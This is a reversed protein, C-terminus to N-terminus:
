NDCWVEADKVPTSLRMTTSGTKQLEERDFTSAYASKYTQCQYDEEFRATISCVKEGGVNMCSHFKINLKECATLGLCFALLLYFKVYVEEFRKASHM